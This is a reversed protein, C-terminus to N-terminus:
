FDLYYKRADRDFKVKPLKRTSGRGGDSVLDIIAASIEADVVEDDDGTLDEFEPVRKRYRARSVVEEDAEEEVGDDEDDGDGDDDRARKLYVPKDPLHRREKAGIISAGYDHVVIIAVTRNLTTQLADLTVKNTAGYKPCGHLSEFYVNLHGFHACDLATWHDAGTRTKVNFLVGFVVPNELVEKLLGHARQINTFGKGARLIAAELVPAPYFGDDNCSYGLDEADEAEKAARAANAAKTEKTEKSAVATKTKAKVDEDSDAGKGFDDTADRWVKTGMAQDRQARCIRQLSIKGRERDHSFIAEQFM